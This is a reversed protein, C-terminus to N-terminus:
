REENMDYFFRGDKKREGNGYKFLVYLIGNSTLCNILDNLILDLDHFPM